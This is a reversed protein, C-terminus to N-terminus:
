LAILATPPVIVPAVKGLAPMNVLVSVCGDGRLSGNFKGTCGQWSGSIIRVIEGFAFGFCDDSTPADPLVVYGQRERSAIEQLTADGVRALEDGFRVVTLVGRTNSVRKLSEALDFRAFVYRPFLAKAVFKSKVGNSRRERTRPLYAQIDQRSLNEAATEERGAHTHVVLWDQEIMM